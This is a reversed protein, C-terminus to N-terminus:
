EHEAHVYMLEHMLLGGSLVTCVICPAVGSCVCVCM